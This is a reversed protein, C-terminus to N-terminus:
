VVQNNPRKFIKKINLNDNNKDNSHNLMTPFIIKNFILNTIISKCALSCQGEVNINKKLLQLTIKSCLSQFIKVVSPMKIMDKKFFKILRLVFREYTEYVKQKTEINNQKFDTFFPCIKHIIDDSIYKNVINIVKGTFPSFDRCFVTFIYTGSNDGNFLSGCDINKREVSEIMIRRIFRTCKSLIYEQSIGNSDPFMEIHSCAEIIMELVRIYIEKDKSNKAINCFNYSRLYHLIVKWHNESRDSSNMPTPTIASNPTATSCSSGPNDKVSNMVALRLMPVKPSGNQVEEMMFKTIGINSLKKRFTISDRNEEIILNPLEMNQIGKKLSYFDDEDNSEVIKTLGMFSSGKRLPSNYNFSSKKVYKSRSSLM